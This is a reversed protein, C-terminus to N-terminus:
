EGGKRSRDSLVTEPSPQAIYLTATLYAAIGQDAEKRTM